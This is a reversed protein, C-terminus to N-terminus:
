RQLIVEVVFRSGLYALLLSLYGALTWRVAVRGRWGYLARGALLAGFIIWSLIGFVTKHTFQLPTGFLEESFIFGSGLTLTLLVFGASIIRFLLKEMTLLPPLQQLFGPVSGSHLRREVLAMLLVHFSAITLLSYSLLAILLHARFALLHTNALPGPPAFALPLLSLLAAAPLILVHLAELRYFISGIGYILVALAIIVSVANGVGLHLGDPRLMSQSLVIAHLALPLAPLLQVLVSGAATPAGDQRRMSRWHYAALATYGASALLHLLIPNM